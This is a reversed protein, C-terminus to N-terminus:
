RAGDRGLIRVLEDIMEKGEAIRGSAICEGTLVLANRLDDVLQAADRITTSPVPEPKRAHFPLRFSKM